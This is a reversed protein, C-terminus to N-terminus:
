PLLRFNVEVQHTSEIPKGDQMAPRFKWQRVAEMAKEDLGLGLSKLVQINGARGDTGITTSLVVTGQLKASRAEETYEPEKKYLLVPQQTGSSTTSSAPAAAPADQLKLFAAREEDSVLDPLLRFTVQVTTNYEVPQGNKMAPKYKWQKVADLAMEDLGLGLSKLVRIDSTRGNTDVTIYLTVTGQLKAKRAEESYEPEKKYLLVPPQVGNPAVSQISSVEAGPARDTKVTNDVYAVRATDLTTTTAFVAHPSTAAQPAPSHILRFDMEVTAPCNVPQGNQTAPRFKWQEVAAVANQDLGLGLSQLVTVVRGQGDAGITLSLVVAGQLQAKLAEPTYPPEKKFIVVPPRTGSPLAQPSARPTVAAPAADPPVNGVYVGREVDYGIVSRFNVGGGPPPAQQAPALQVAAALYLLPLGCVALATWRARTWGRPIDRTEDLIRDIRRRVEATKAMAMAEWVLRGHGTKVAAAMDLLAEAYPERTGLELVAADDCAQEALVALRRELWWALPHFWFLCRNLGAMAAIAWDARRVHGQEHAMVAALKEAPWDRWGAPLVIKPHLFGVTVPVSIWTSEYTPCGGPLRALRSGRVLHRTFRYSSGLLVLFVLVGAAYLGAAIQQWAMGRPPPAPPRIAFAALPAVHPRPSEALMPVAPLIHLPISPLLAGAAGVLLMGATVATWVAHQAAASKLRLLWIAAAAVAAVALSRVALNALFAMMAPGTEM